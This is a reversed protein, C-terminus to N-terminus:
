RVDLFSMLSSLMRITAGAFPLAYFRRANEVETFHVQTFANVSENLFTEVYHSFSESQHRKKHQM